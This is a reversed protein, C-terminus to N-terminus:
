LNESLEEVVRGLEAWSAKRGGNQELWPSELDALRVIKKNGLSKEPVVYFTWQLPDRQDCTEDFIGHWAFIFIECFRGSAEILEGKHDREFYSPPKNKIKTSFAPVVKRRPTWLQKAASQRVQIRIRKTDKGKQFDWPHWGEAVWDWAPDAIGLAQWVMAEAFSGRERNDMVKRNYLRDVLKTKIEEFSM